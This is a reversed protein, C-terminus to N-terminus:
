LGMFVFTRWLIPARSIVRLNISLYNEQTRVCVTLLRNDTLYDHRYFNNEAPPSSFHFVFFFIRHPIYNEDLM